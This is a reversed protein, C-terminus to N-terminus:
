SETTLQSSVLSSDLGAAQRLRSHSFDTNFPRRRKLLGLPELYPSFFYHRPAVALNLSHTIVSDDPFSGCTVRLLIRMRMGGIKFGFLVGHQFGSCRVVLLWTVELSSM